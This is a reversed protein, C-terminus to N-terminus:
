KYTFINIRYPQLSQLRLWYVVVVFVVVCCCCCCCKVLDYDMLNQSDSFLRHALMKGAKIAM